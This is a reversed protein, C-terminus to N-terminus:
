EGEIEGGRSEIENKGLPVSTALSLPELQMDRRGEEKEQM